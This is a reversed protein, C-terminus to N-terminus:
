YFNWKRRLNGSLESHCHKMKNTNTKKPKKIAIHTGDICGIVHSVCFKTNLEDAALAMKKYLLLFHFKKPGLQNCILSCMTKISEYITSKALRFTNATM